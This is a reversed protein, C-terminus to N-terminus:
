LDIRAQIEQVPRVYKRLSPIQIVGFGQARKEAMLQPSANKGIILDVQCGRYLQDAALATVWGTANTEYLTTIVHAIKVVGEGGMSHHSNTLLRTSQMKKDATWATWSNESVGTCPRWSMWPCRFLIERSIRQLATFRLWSLRRQERPILGRRCAEDLLVLYQYDQFGRRLSELRTTPVPLGTQPHPYYFTGRRFFDQPGPPTTWPDNPWYNVGWLLYGSFHYRYLLWGILRPHALPHDIGQLRNAYLWAEQGQHQAQEKEDDRYHAAQYAWIDIVRVFEPSPRWGASLTRIGPSLSKALAFAQIVSGYQPPRPEDVLYNVARNEWGHRRLYASYLPYFIRAQRSFTSDPDSVSEWGKLKPNQFYKFKLDDLAYQLLEHYTSYDELRQGPHIQGLPLPYSGGLANFKHARLSQYYKKIIEASPLGKASKSWLGPQYWFGGFITIPLDQPLAFRYVRLDVPVRISGHRDTIVLNLTHLGPECNPSIKLSVWLILPDFASDSGEEGLSLLADPPVKGISALPVTVVRFFNCKLGDPTGEMRAKLSPSGGELSVMFFLHENRAGALSIKVTKQSGGTLQLTPAPQGWAQNWFQGANGWGSAWLVASLSILPLIGRLMTMWM